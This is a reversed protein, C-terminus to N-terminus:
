NRNLSEDLNMLTSAVLVYAAFEAPELEAVPSEGVALLQRAQEPAQQYRAQHTTLQQQLIALEPETLSRALTWRAGVQLRSAAEAGGEAIMRTALGRAAEFFQVDNMLQLAQLPTNSRERRACSQERNPADFNSMFPPPATRKLFTYISRRYLAPGRDPQYFRTNSGVFGVPEWINPPQYPKVGKGGMEWQILGSVALAQDRIQEADLRLRSMRALWQNHPDQELLRPTVATSQQFTLSNLLLRVLDKVDWGSQRFHIALYDLLEPHSPPDGQSGFDASTKVLGTGFFQQWFRNVAVRATLPNAEDLLWRALDLRNALQGAATQLPPLAAPVDPNVPEGPQSYDGRLMVHAQRPQPLDKFVFTRPINAEYERERTEWNRIQQLYDALQIKTSGCHRLLYQRLLKQEAEQDVEGPGQRLIPQLEAPLDTDNEAMGKKWWALFSLEPDKAPNSEGTVGVQDWCVTGGHQTLAFGTIADGRQLGVGELPFELRVWQGADPMAGMGVRQHTNPEGWPILDYDGWVARHNWGGKHFQVMISRPLDNPDLYVHAFFIAQRPITLAGDSTEWVDQALGPDSRKLALRGSFVPVKENVQEVFEPTQGPSAYLRGKEPFQDDFWSHHIIETPPAPNLSAPDVYELAAVQQDLLKRAEVALRRYEALQQRDAETDLRLVPQTLLANGDMAPDAASYFFAYLSFFEKQSIPDFKHDHCVACGATLGLWTEATTSAREVAYRFLFEADISGGESTTVNCRNFGTAVLQDQTPEPLLDGALQELTFQDFPQNRNFSAIVWDRYAWMQRENDLHLGHTDAYRALDLWHRAMEEGYHPSELYREVMRQYADEADDELFEAVAAPTPPLGTLAFAVRRILVSKEAPQSFGLGRQQLRHYVFADIPNVFKEVGPVDPQRIPQFSWHAEYSAGQLIWRRLVEQEESTLGKHSEPPPMVLSPDSGTIRKWLESAEPDGPVIVWGEWDPSDQPPVDLRLDAERHNADFGHCAFCKDSLIPRVDRNFSVQDGIATQLGSALIPGSSGNLSALLLGLSFLLTGNCFTFCKMSFMRQQWHDLGSSFAQMAAGLVAPIPDGQDGNGFNM